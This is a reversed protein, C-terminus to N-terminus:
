REMRGGGTKERQLDTLLDDVSRAIEHPWPVPQVDLDQVVGCAGDRPLPDAPFTLLRPLSFAELFAEVFCPCGAVPMCM